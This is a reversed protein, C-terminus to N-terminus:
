SDLFALLAIFVFFAALMSLCGIIGSVRVGGRAHLAMCQEVNDLYAFKRFVRLAKNRYLTNGYSGALGACMGVFLLFITFPAMGDGVVGLLVLMSGLSVAAVVSILLVLFTEAYMRRYFMWFFSFNFAAWNWGKFMTESHNRWKDLYYWSNNGVFIEVEEKTLWDRNPDNVDNPRRTQYMDGTGGTGGIGSAGGIGSTDYADNTDDEM